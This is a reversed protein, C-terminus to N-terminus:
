RRADGVGGLGAVRCLDRPEEGRRQGLCGGGPHDGADREREEASAGRAVTAAQPTSAAQRASASSPGTSSSEFDTISMEGNAWLGCSGPPAKVPAGTM